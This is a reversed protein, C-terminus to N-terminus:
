SHNPFIDRGLCKFRETLAFWEKKEALSKFVWVGQLSQIPPENRMLQRREEVIGQLRKKLNNKKNWQYFLCLTGVVSTIEVMLHLFEQKPEIGEIPMIKEIQRAFKNSLLINVTSFLPTFLTVKCINVWAIDTIYQTYLVCVSSFERDNMLASPTIRSIPIM